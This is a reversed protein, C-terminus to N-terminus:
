RRFNRLFGGIMWAVVILALVVLVFKGFIM